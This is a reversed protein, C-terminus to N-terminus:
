IWYKDGPISPTKIVVLDVDTECIVDTKEGAEYIFIDGKSLIRYAKSAGEVAVAIRGSVVLNMELSELHYHNDSRHGKPLSHFAVEFNITKLIVPDFNGIFWGQKCNSVNDIKM